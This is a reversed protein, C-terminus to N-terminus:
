AVNIRSPRRMLVACLLAALFLLAWFPLPADGGGAYSQGLTGGTANQLWATFRPDAAVIGGGVTGFQYNV